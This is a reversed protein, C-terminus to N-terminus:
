FAESTAIKVKQVSFKYQDYLSQHHPIVEESFKSLPIEVFKLPQKIISPNIVSAM